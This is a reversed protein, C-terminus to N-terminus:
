DHKFLLERETIFPGRRVIIFGVCLLLQLVDLKVMRFIATQLTSLGTRMQALFIVITVFDIAVNVLADRSLHIILWSGTSMQGSTPLIQDM